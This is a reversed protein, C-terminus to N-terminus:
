TKQIVQGYIQHDPLYVTNLTKFGPLPDKTLNWDGPIDKLQLLFFIDTSNAIQQLHAITDNTQWDSIFTINSGLQFNKQNDTFQPSQTLQPNINQYFIFPNLSDYNSNSVFVKTNSPIPTSYLYKQGYNWSAFQDLPFHLFYQHLYLSLNFGLLIFSSLILFKSLSSLGLATYFILPPLTIFLRTAHLGGNQTLASAIPAILLWFTFFPYKKSFNILGIILFPTFLLLLPGFGPVQHRPNPDGNIFLFQPSLSQLYQHIFVSPYSILKNHFLREIAPSGASFSTRQDVIQNVTVPDHFISILQFRHSAQGFLLQFIFPTLIILSLLIPRILTKPPPRTQFLLFPLFLAVFINATNYTYFSLAFFLFSLYHRSRLHFYTAWLLLALLLTVEFAARSYHLHWPTISLLLTAILAIKTSRTLQHSLFYFALLSLLGFIVAPLRVGLESRGFIAVSPLASYIFLPARSEAFSQLYTPLFNGRYDRLTTLLSYAQNGVDIEDGFLTPADLHYLRLAFAFILISILWKNM